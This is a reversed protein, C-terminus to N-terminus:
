SASLEVQWPSYRRSAPLGWLRRIALLPFSLTAFEWGRILGQEASLDPLPKKKQKKRLRGGIRGLGYSVREERSANWRTGTRQAFDPVSHFRDRGPEHPACDANESDKPRLALHKPPQAAPGGTEEGAGFSSM